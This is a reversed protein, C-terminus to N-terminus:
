NKKGLFKIFIPIRESISSIIKDREDWLLIKGQEAAAFDNLVKEFNSLTEENAEINFYKCIYKFPQNQANKCVTLSCNYVNNDNRFSKLEPRKFNYNSNDIYNANGYDVQKINIYSKKLEEIHANLENCKLTNDKISEKIELFADSKYYLNEYIFWGVIALIIFPPFFLTLLFIIAIIFVFIVKERIKELGADNKM